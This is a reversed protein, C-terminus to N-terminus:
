RWITSRPSSVAGSSGPLRATALRGSTAACCSPANTAQCSTTTMRARSSSITASRAPITHGRLVHWNSLICPAGTKRDYVVAGFTGATIDGHGISVGPQMPDLRQKRTGIQAEPEIHYSPKFSREIVDTPVEVGEVMITKPLERTELAELELASGGKTGVTFQISIDKTKKEVPAGSETETRIKYGIGISNVNPDRLYNEGQSRIFRRLAERMKRTDPKKKSPM